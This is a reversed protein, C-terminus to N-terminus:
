TGPSIIGKINKLKGSKLSKELTEDLKTKVTETLRVGGFLNLTERKLEDASMGLNHKTLYVMANALERWSVQDVTRSESDTNLRFKEWSNLDLTAPWVFPEDSPRGLDKPIQAKIANSRDENVRNLSCQQAVLKVLRQEHIPGEFEVIDRIISQVASVAQPHNPLYNLFDRDHTVKAPWAKFELRAEDSDTTATAKKAARKVVLAQAAEIEEQGITVDTKTANGHKANAIEVCIRDLVAERDNLWDALWIRQVTPWKMLNGLIDAPLADRDSITARSAWKPGDLLIAVVPNNPEEKTAVAMDIRFDSLGVDTTVVLGRKRLQNAVDDRHQDPVTRRYPDTMATDSGAHALELYRGFHRIGPNTARRYPLQSPLFSSFVLVQRRARTIAVNLRREGGQRGLSGYGVLSVEGGQVPKSVFFFISDREDGQVFEISKVFIGADDELAQVIRENGTARLLVDILRTEEVSFTVIGISPVDDAPAAKFRKVVESVIAEAVKKNIEARAKKETAISVKNREKPPLEAVKIHRLSIGYGNIGDDRTGFRPTPFSALKADYYQENSFSILSEDQSRYHWTLTDTPVQCQKCESLISEQDEATDSLEELSEVEEDNSTFASSSSEFFSTPPMQKSDGVVIVSKARGMAGISDAVRLQSAEDFVVVDFLGPAPPLLRSVSEPSMMVCPTVESIIDGFEKFIGRINLGGKQRDLQMRLQGVRGTTAGASFTRRGISEHALSGPMEKRVKQIGARFRDVHRGHISPDFDTLGLTTRREDVSVTALGVELAEDAMEPNVTGDLLDNVTQDLNLKRLVRTPVVFALWGRLTRAMEDATSGRTASTSSWKVAFGDNGAWAVIDDRSLSAQTVFDTFATEYNTWTSALDLTTARTDMLNSILAIFEPRFKGTENRLTAALSRVWARRSSFFTAVDDSFANFTVPLEFGPVSKSDDILGDNVTKIDRLETCIRQLERYRIKVGPRLYPDFQQLLANEMKKKIGFRLSATEVLSQLLADFDLELVNPKLKLFAPRPISVLKLIRAELRQEADSCLQSPALVADSSSIVPGTLIELIVETEDHGQIKTALDRGQPHALLTRVAGDLKLASQAVYDVKVTENTVFRWPHNKSPRALGIAGIMSEIAGRIEDLQAPTCSQVFDHPLALPAVDSDALSLAVARQLSFGAGNTETIRDRYRILPSRSTKLAQAGAELSAADFDPALELAQKLQEKIASPKAGKDHADLSLAGLGIDDLRRRVVRLAEGKEAVFLVKKGETILRALMNTIAQSKGTGPPGELVFTGGRTAKHVAVLQSGDAPIPVKAYLDELDQERVEVPKADFPEQPSYTLHKVLPNDVFNQWNEDLDKWIRYKAFQLRALHVDREVTFDLKNKEIAEVVAAFTADIDIGSDDLKPNRLGPIEINQERFLKEVLCLNPASEGADDLVLRFDGKKMIAELKVPVLILPSSLEMPGSKWRLQGVSLYLNNAGTEQRYNKASLQLNRLVRDYASEKLNTFVVGQNELLDYLQGPPLAAADRIGREQAFADIGDSRGLIFSKGANIMNEFSAVKDFPVTLQASSRPNFKILANNASLDLLANKWQAIRAPTDGREVPEDRRIGRYDVPTGGTFGPQYNIITVNGDDTVQRVPLPVIQARRARTVDIVCEFNSLDSSLRDRVPMACIEAWTANAGARTLATTEVLGMLSDDVVPGVAMGADATAVSPFRLGGSRWYGLFAHENLLWIVPQIGAQELAAAMVITTDLCTGGTGNLVESPTRIVQGGLIGEDSLNINGDEDVGANEYLAWSAPPNTYTLDRNRIATGIAEVIQDIRKPENSQYGEIASDNGALHLLDSAERLIEQIAPDQPMVYAALAAYSIETFSAAWRMSPLIRISTDTQAVISGKWEIRARLTGPTITTIQSMVNPSLEFDTEPREFRKRGGADLHFEKSSYSGLVTDGMTVELHLRLPGRSVGSNFVEVQNFAGIRNFALAYSLYPLSDFEVTIDSSPNFPIDEPPVPESSADDGPQRGGGANPKAEENKSTSGDESDTAPGSDHNPLETQPNKLANDTSEPDQEDNPNDESAVGIDGEAPRKENQNATDHQADTHRTAEIDGSALGSEDDRDQLQEKLVELESVVDTADMLNLILGMSEILDRAESTDISTEGQMRTFNRIISRLLVRSGQNKARSLAFDDLTGGVQDALVAFARMVLRHNKESV